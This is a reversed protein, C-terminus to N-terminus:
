YEEVRIDYRDDLVMTTNITIAQGLIFGNNSGNYNVIAKFTCTIRNHTYFVGYRIPSLTTTNNMEKTYIGEALMYEGNSITGTMILTGYTVGNATKNAIYEKQTESSWNFLSGDYTRTYLQYDGIIPQGRQPRYISRGDPQTIGILRPYLSIPDEYSVATYYIIDIRNIDSERVNSIHFSLTRNRGSGTVHVSELVAEYDETKTYDTIINCNEDVQAMYVEGVVKLNDNEDLTVSGRGDEGVVFANPCFALFEIGTKPLGPQNINRTYKGAIRVRGNITVTEGDAGYEVSGLTWDDFSFMTPPIGKDTWHQLIADSMENDMEDYNKDLIYGYNSEKYIIDPEHNYESYNRIRDWNRFENISKSYPNTYTVPTLIKENSNVTHIDTDSNLVNVLKVPISKPSVINYNALEGDRFLRDSNVLNSLNNFWPLRPYLNSIFDHPTHGYKKYTGNFWLNFRKNLVTNFIHFENFVMTEQYRGIHTGLNYSNDKLYTTFNNFLTILDLRSFGNPYENLFEDDTLSNLLKIGDNVWKNSIVWPEFTDKTVHTIDNSVTALKPALYPTKSFRYADNGKYRYQPKLLIDKPLTLVNSTYLKPATGLSYNGEIAIRGDESIVLGNITYRQNDIDFSISGEILNKDVDQNFTNRLNIPYLYESNGFLQIATVYDGEQYKYPEITIEISSTVGFDDTQTIRYTDGVIFSPYGELSWGGDAKIRRTLIVENANKTNVLTLLAGPEGMGILKSVYSTYPGETILKLESISRDKRLKVRKVNRGLTEEFPDDFWVEIFGYKNKLEIDLTIIDNKNAGRKGIAYGLTESTRYFIDVDDGNTLHIRVQDESLILPGNITFSPENVYGMMSKNVNTENLYNANTYEVYNANFTNYSGDFYLNLPLNNIDNNSVSNKSQAVYHKPNAHLAALRAVTTYYPYMWEKDRDYRLVRTFPSLKTNSNVKIFSVALSRPYVECYRFGHYELKLRTDSSTITKPQKLYVDKTTSTLNNYDYEVLVTDLYVNDILAKELSTLYATVNRHVLRFLGPEQRRIGDITDLYNGNIDNNDGVKKIFIPEDDLFYGNVNFLKEFSGHKEEIDRWTPNFESGNIDPLMTYYQDNRKWICKGSFTVHNDSINVSGVADNPLTNTYPIFRNDVNDFEYVEPKIEGKNLNVLTVSNCPTLTVNDPNWFCSHDFITYYKYERSTLSPRAKGRLYFYGMKVEGGWWPYKDKNTILTKDVFSSLYNIGYNPNPTDTTFTDWGTMPKYIVTPGVDTTILEFNDMHYQYIAKNGNAINLVEDKVRNHHLVKFKPNWVQTKDVYKDNFSLTGNKDKNFLENIKVIGPILRHGYTTIVTGDITILGSADISVKGDNVPIITDPIPIWTDRKLEKNNDIAGYTVSGDENVSLVKYVNRPDVDDKTIDDYYLQLTTYDNSDGLYGYNDVLKTDTSRVVIGETKFTGDPYVTLKGGLVPIPYVKDGTSSVIQELFDVYHYEIISEAHNTNKSVFRNPVKIKKDYAAHHQYVNVDVRPLVVEDNLYRLKEFASYIGPKVLRNWCYVKGIIEITGQPYVYVVSNIDGIGFPSEPIYEQIQKDTLNKGKYPTLDTRAKYNGPKLAVYDNTLTRDSPLPIQNVNDVM